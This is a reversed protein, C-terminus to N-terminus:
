REGTEISRAQAAEDLSALTTKVIFRFVALISECRASTPMNDLLRQGAETIRQWDADRTPSADVEEEARHVIDHFRNLAAEIFCGEPAINEGHRAKYMEFRTM